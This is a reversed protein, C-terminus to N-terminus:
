FWYRHFENEFINKLKIMYKNLNKNFNCYIKLYYCVLEM